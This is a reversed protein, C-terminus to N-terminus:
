DIQLVRRAYLIFNEKILEAYTELNEDTLGLIDIKWWNQDQMKEYDGDILISDKLVNIFMSRYFAGTDDLDYPDGARKRGDSIQETAETYFGIFNGNGDIGEDKLQSYRVFDILTDKLEDTHSEFWAISDSLKLALKLQEDIITNGIM